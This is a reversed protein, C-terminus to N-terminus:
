PSGNFYKYCLFSMILKINESVGKPLPYSIINYFINFEISKLFTLEYM